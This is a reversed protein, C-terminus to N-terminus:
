EHKNSSIQQEIIYRFSQKLNSKRGSWCIHIMKM